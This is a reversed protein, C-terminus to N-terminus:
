SGKIGYLAAHTYQAWGTYATTLTVSTIANTNRWSGSGLQIYGQANFSTGNVDVGQLVRVTKFKNTNAYDLIDFIGAGFINPAATTGMSDQFWMNNANVGSDVAVNAGTGYVDHSSYNAGTDSNFTMTLNGTGFTSRTIQGFLRIQLHTYTSPISTFSISTTGGSGVITTAISEYSSPNFATNGALLSRSKPFGQLVSSTKIRSIAM